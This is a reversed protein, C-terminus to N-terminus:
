VLHRLSQLESTHEVSRSEIREKITEGLSAFRTDVDTLTEELEEIKEHHEELWQTQLETVQVGAEDANLSALTSLYGGIWPIIGIAALFFKKAFRGRRTGQHEAIEAKIAEVESAAASLELNLVIPDDSEM